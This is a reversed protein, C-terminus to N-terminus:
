YATTPGKQIVSQLPHSFAVKRTNPSGLTPIMAVLCCNHPPSQEYEGHNGDSCGRIEAYFTLRYGLAGLQQSDEAGKRLIAALDRQDADQAVGQAVIVGFIVPEPVDPHQGGRPRSQQLVGGCEDWEEVP